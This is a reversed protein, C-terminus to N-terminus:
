LSIEIRYNKNNLTKFAKKYANKASLKYWYVAQQEDTEIGYGQDYQRALYYQAKDHGQRAAKELWLFSEKYDQQVYDGNFFLLGYNCQASALGSAAAEKFLEYAKKNDVEQGEKGLLLIRGLRDQAYPVKDKALKQLMSVPETIESFCSKPIDISEPVKMQNDLIALIEDVSARKEPDKEMMRVLLYQIKQPISKNLEPFLYIHSFIKTFDNSQNTLDFVAKGTILYYVTCGLAYIESSFGREGYYMEPALYIPNGKLHITKVNQGFQSLGWDALWYTNNFLLINAPKIDLHLLNNKKAFLLISIIQKIFTSLEDINLPGIKDVHRKLNGQQAYDFLLYINNQHKEAYHFLLSNEKKNMIKLAKIEQEIRHIYRPHYVKKLAYSKGNHDKSLFVEGFGGKGVKKGTTLNEIKNSQKINIGVEPQSDKLVPYLRAFFCATHQVSDVRVWQRTLKFRFSDLSKEPFKHAYMSNSTHRTFMIGKASKLMNQMIKDARENEGLYRALNYAAIVGECRSADHYVSDGYDYYFGGIYDFWPSDEEKYMHDFMQQTDNFVFDIYSQKKCGEVKVWEEIAQMLWADAPLSLFLEKYRKPRIDVLFDLAQISKRKIEQKFEASINKVYLYYLALGLLAEGPYYFSFLEKRDKPTIKNIDSLPKGNNFLPHVFYGIMEGDDAVRSLIHRVLGDMKKRYCEDGTHMYYHLLAVLGIGAGGLKSKKNFFPYCAYEGKYKHERFTSLLFGLSKKGANLYKNNGSLEYGRFLTISGGSHRLINNYLPDIMKPHDLDVKTDRIGDYFYLFSGDDNMNHILWDMSKLMSDYLIDKSFEVPMPYGRHLPIAKNEYSIFAISKIKKFKIPDRRMLHAREKISNTRKAHGTQKSLFNLLQNVTLISNTVADTPMFFRVTKEYTYKFGTIGAEFRDESFKMTTLNRINCNSEETVMEFLIRTKKPNVIDFQQFRKNTKLKNIVREITEKFNKRRSGWRIKKTDPQFLTIYVQSIKHNFIFTLNEPITIEQDSCLSNRIQTLLLDEALNEKQWFSYDIPNSQEM